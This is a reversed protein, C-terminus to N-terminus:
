YWEDWGSFLFSFGVDQWDIFLWPGVLVRQVALSIVIDISLAAKVDLSWWAKGLMSIELPLTGPDIGRYGVKVFFRHWTVTAGQVFDM